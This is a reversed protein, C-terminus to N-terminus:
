IYVMISFHQVIIGSTFYLSFIQIKLYDVSILGKIGKIAMNSVKQVKKKAKRGFTQIRKGTM